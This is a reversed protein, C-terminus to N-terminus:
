CYCTNGKLAAIHMAVLGSLPSRDQLDAKGKRVLLACVSPHGGICASQPSNLM